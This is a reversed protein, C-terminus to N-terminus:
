YKSAAEPVPLMFKPFFQSEPPLLLSADSFKVLLIVPMAVEVLTLLM